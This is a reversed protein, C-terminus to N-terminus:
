VSPVIALFFFHSPSCVFFLFLFLVSFMMLPCLSLARPEVPLHSRNTRLRYESVEWAGEAVVKGAMAREM